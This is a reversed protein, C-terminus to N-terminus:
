RRRASWEAYAAQDVTIHEAPLYFEAVLNILPGNIFPHHVTAASAAYGFIVHPIEAEVIRMLDRILSERRQPNMERMQAYYLEVVRPPPGLEYANTRIAAGYIALMASVTSRSPFNQGIDYMEGQSDGTRRFLAHEQVEIRTRIGVAELYGAIAQSLQLYEARTPFRLM